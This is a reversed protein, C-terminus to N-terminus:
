QPQQAPEQAPASVPPTAAPTQPAEQLLPGIHKAYQPMRQAIFGVGGLCALGICLWLMFGRMRTKHAFFLATRSTFLSAICMICALLFIFSCVAIITQMPDGARHQRM